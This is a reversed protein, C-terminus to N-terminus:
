CGCPGEEAIAAADALASDAEDWRGTAILGEAHNTLLVGEMPRDRRERALTLGQLFSSEARTHQRLDNLLMGMNNLVWSAAEDDRVERFARLAARYRVLAGDLDGRINALVGLNQEIMGALRIEGAETARRAARRYLATAEDLDGRRQAMVARCNLAAAQGSATGTVEAVRLSEEYCREAEGSEGQDRLVSGMWRLVNALLPTPELDAVLDRATSYWQLASDLERQKEAARGARALELARDLRDEPAHVEAVQTM